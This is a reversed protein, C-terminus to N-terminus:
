RGFVVKKELWDYAKNGSKLLVKADNMATSLSDAGLVAVVSVEGKRDPRVDAALFTRGAEETYGIKLGVVEGDNVTTNLNYIKGAYPIDAEPQSAIAVLIPNAVYLLGIQVMDDATSKTLPSYGSADAILTHSLGKQRLMTNAYENYNEVSGFAWRALTDAMNNASPLLMAQLAQYETIQEGAEVSIVTGSKNIYEQYSAVDQETLTITPGQEGPALPKKDLVALATIVKALSAIPVPQSSTSSQTLVGEGAVGYAAQGYNPWPLPETIKTKAAPVVPVSQSSNAAKAPSTSRGGSGTVVPLALAAVLVIPLIVYPWRRSKQYGHAITYKTM